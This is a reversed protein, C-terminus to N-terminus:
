EIKENEENFNFDVRDSKNKELKKRKNKKNQM